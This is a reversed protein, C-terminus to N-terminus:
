FRYCTLMPNKTLPNEMSEFPAALKVASIKMYQSIEIVTRRAEKKFVVLICRM